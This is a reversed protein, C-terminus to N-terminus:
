VVGALRYCYYYSQILIEVTSLSEVNRKRVMALTEVTKAEPYGEPHHSSPSTVLMLARLEDEELAKDCVFAGALWGQDITKKNTAHPPPQGFYWPFANLDALDEVGEGSPDEYVACVGEAILKFGRILVFLHYPLLLALLGVHTKM